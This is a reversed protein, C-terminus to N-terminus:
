VKQRSLKVIVEALADFELDTDKGRNFFDTNIQAILTLYGEHKKKEEHHFFDTNMLAIQPLM